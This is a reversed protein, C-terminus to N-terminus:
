QLTTKKALVNVRRGIEVILLKKLGSCWRKGFRSALQGFGIGTSQRKPTRLNWNELQRFFSFHKHTETRWHVSQLCLLCHYQYLMEYNEESNYPRVMFSLFETLKNSPLKLLYNASKVALVLETGLYALEYIEFM